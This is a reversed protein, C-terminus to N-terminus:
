DSSLSSCMGATASCWGGGESAALLMAWMIAPSPRLAALLLQVIHMKGQSAMLAGAILLTEGPVPMGFDELFIAGFIAWYGYHNLYSQLPVMPSSVVVSSREIGKPNSHQEIDAGNRKSKRRLLKAAKLVPSRGQAYGLDPISRITDASTQGQQLVTVLNDTRTQGVFSLFCRSRSGTSWYTWESSGPGNSLNDSLFKQGAIM